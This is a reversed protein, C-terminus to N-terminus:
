AKETDGWIPDEESVGLEKKVRVKFSGRTEDMQRHVLLGADVTEGFVSSVYNGKTIRIVAFVSGGEKRIALFKENENNM